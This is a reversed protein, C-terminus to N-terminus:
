AQKRKGTATFTMSLLLNMLVHNAGPLGFDLVMPKGNNNFTSTSVTKGDMDKVDVVPIPRPQFVQAQSVSASVLALFFITKKIM